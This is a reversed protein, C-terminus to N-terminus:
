LRLPRSALHLLSTTVNLERRLSSCIIIIIVDIIIIM